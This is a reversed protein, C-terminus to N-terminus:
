RKKARSRSVLSQDPVLADECALAPSLLPSWILGRFTEPGIPPIEMAPNRITYALDINVPTRMDAHGVTIFMPAFTHIM